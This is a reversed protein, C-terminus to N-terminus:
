RPYRRSRRDTIPWRAGRPVTGEALPSDPPAAAPLAITRGEHAGPVHAPQARWGGRLAIAVAIAIALAAPSMVWGRLWWERPRADHRIRAMVRAKLDASPPAATLARAVDDIDDDWMLSGANACGSSSSV